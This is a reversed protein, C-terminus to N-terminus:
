FASFSEEPLEGLLNDLDDAEWDASNELEGALNEHLATDGRRRPEPSLQSGLPEKSPKSANSNEDRQCSPNMRCISGGSICKSQELGSSTKNLVNQSLQSSAWETGDPSYIRLLNNPTVNLYHNRHSPSFVGVQKLLLVAGSKLEPQREELLQRHVTGQMEGTPDRFVARADSNTRALSKVMVAMNPVKNKPLQKLAAKRLVMIISYTRLFSSPNKEDLGLETKMATWPGREFEDEVTQQSSPSQQPQLKALAGHAPTQPASVMVEELNRGILQKPLIGAPGPFRRTKARPTGWAASQPTKNAASVLQVLHNTYVPTQLSSPAVAPSCPMRPAAVPTTPQLTRPEQPSWAPRSSWASSPYSYNQASTQPRALRPNNPTRNPTYSFSPSRLSAAIPRLAQSRPTSPAPCVTLPTAQPINTQMSVSVPIEGMKRICNSQNRIRTDSSEPVTYESTSIQLFTSRGDQHCGPDSDRAPKVASKHFASDVRPRMQPTRTSSVTSGHIEPRKNERVAQESVSGSGVAIPEEYAPLSLDLNDFDDAVVGQPNGTTFSNAKSVFRFKSAANQQHATVSSLTDSPGKIKSPLQIESDPTGHKSTQLVPSSPSLSPSTEPLHQLHRPKVSPIQLSATPARLGAGIHRITVSAPTAPSTGIKTELDVVASLFDEDEFEEGVNFLKRWSCAM